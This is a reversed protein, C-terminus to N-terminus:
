IASAGGALRARLETVSTLVLRLGFAGIAAAAFRTLAQRKRAYAAQVRPLSFTLALLFHWALANVLVMALAAFVLGAPADHPLATAFVSGFFLASKPNMINTFFGLRFAACASMSGQRYVDAGAASRWLRVALCCLYAGGALQLASRLRPYAAFVAHVGLAALSAWIVAVVTIGIAAFCAARRDGGAALQSVVLVNAGPTVLILWHLVAISV